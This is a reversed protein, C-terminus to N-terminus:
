LEDEWTDALDAKCRELARRIDSWTHGRRVLADIAKKTEKPDSFNGKLRTQLFHDIAGGMDPVLALAEEWYEKPIGKQYLVQQIRAVGYGKAAERKVLRFAMQRDDILQMSELWQAAEQSDQETEGKAELRRLLEGKSVDSAAVIRVARARASARRIGQVLQLFEDQTLEKGPYLDYDGVIEPLVKLTTGDAFQLEVKKQFKGTVILAELKMM